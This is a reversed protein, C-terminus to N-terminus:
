RRVGMGAITRRAGMRPVNDRQMRNHALDRLEAEDEAYRVYHMLSKKTEKKQGFLTYLMYNQITESFDPPLPASTGLGTMLGGNEEVHPMLSAYHIRVPDTDSTVVPYTGLFYIGRMWWFRSSDPRNEWQRGIANDMEEVTIPAMWKNTGINWVATIRLSDEPLYARLDIYAANKRRQVTMEREYVESGESIEDLADNYSLVMDATSFFRSDPDEVRIRVKDIIAQATEM